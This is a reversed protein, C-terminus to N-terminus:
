VSCINLVAKNQRFVDPGYSEQGRLDDVKLGDRLVQSLM